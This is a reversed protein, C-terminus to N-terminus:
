LPRELHHAVLHIPRVLPLHQVQIRALLLHDLPPLKITAVLCVVQSLQPTAALYDEVLTPSPPPVLDLQNSPLHLELAQTLIKDLPITKNALHTLQNVLPTGQKDLLLPLHEM